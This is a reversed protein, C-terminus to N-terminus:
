KTLSKRFTRSNSVKSFALAAGSIFHTLSQLDSNFKPPLPTVGPRRETFRLGTVVETGCSYEQTVWKYPTSVLNAASKAYMYQLVIEKHLTYWSASSSFGKVPTVAELYNNINFFWDLVFSFPILEYTGPIIDRLELGLMAQVSPKYRTMVGARVYCNQSAAITYSETYQNKGTDYNPVTVTYNNSVSKSLDLSKSGRFTQAWKDKMGNPSVDATLTKVLGNLSLMLPIVGYHAELWLGSADATYGLATKARYQMVKSNGKMRLGKSSITKFLGRRTVSELRGLNTRIMDYTKGAEAIDVLGMVNRQHANSYAQNVAERILYDLPLQDVAPYKSYDSPLWGTYDIRQSIVSGTPPAPNTTHGDNWVGNLSTIVESWMVTKHMPNNVIKGDSQLKRWGKTVIDYMRQGNSADPPASNAGSTTTVIAAQNKVGRTTVQTWDPIALPTLEGRIRPGFKTRSM